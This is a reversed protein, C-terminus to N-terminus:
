AWLHHCSHDVHIQETHHTIDTDGDNGASAVETAAPASAPAPQAAPAPAAVVPPTAPAPAPDAAPAAPAPTVAPIPTATSLVEALTLGDPNYTGGTVPINNGGVDAANDHIVQAAATVLAANGENLGKIIADVEAGLTSSPTLENDFRAEFIGGQALDFNTANKEFTQLQTILSQIANADGGGVLQIAQQGLSNGDAIFNAWFNTQADNDQFRPTPNLSDPFVSFGTVGGQNAM